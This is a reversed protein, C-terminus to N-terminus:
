FELRYGRRQSTWTRQVGPVLDGGSIDKDLLDAPTRTLPAVGVPIIWRSRGNRLDLGGKM